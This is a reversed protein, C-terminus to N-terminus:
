RLEERQADDRAFLWCWSRGVTCSWASGHLIRGGGSDDLATQALCSQRLAALTGCPVNPNPNCNGSGWSYVQAIRQSKSIGNPNTPTWAVNGYWQEIVFESYAATNSTGDTVSAITCPPDLSAGWWTEANPTSSDVYWGIGNHYGQGAFKTGTGGPGGPSIMTGMNIAYTFNATGGNLVNTQSPCNFIPLRGSFAQQNYGSWGPVYSGGGKDMLSNYEPSREVYPMIAVKDSFYYAGGYNYGWGTSMPYTQYTNSYTQMALLIQKLNNICQARRAAERASQVAPLLLAILIGIIAIVVLLEVLTFGWRRHRMILFRM